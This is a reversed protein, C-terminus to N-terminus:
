SILKASTKPRCAIVKHRSDFVKKIRPYVVAVRLRDGSERDVLYGDGHNILLVRDFTIVSHALSVVDAANFTHRRM